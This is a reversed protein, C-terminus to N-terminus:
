LPRPRHTAPLGIFAGQQWQAGATDAIYGHRETDVGKAILTRCLHTGLGVLYNFVHRSQESATALHLFSPDTRLIEPRIAQVDRVSTLGTGFNDISISCGMRRVKNIFLLAHRCSHLDNEFGIVLRSAISPKENLLALPENWWHDDRLSQTSVKVCLNSYSDRELERLTLLVMHQDFARILGTRELCALEDDMSSLKGQSDMRRAVADYLLVNEPDSCDAVREWSTIMENRRILELVHGSMKMDARYDDSTGKQVHERTGPRDIYPAAIDIATTHPTITYTVAPYIPLEGFKIPSTSINIGLQAVWYNVASSLAMEPDSIQVNVKGIFKDDCSFDDIIFKSCISSKLHKSFNESVLRAAYDGFYKEIDKINQICFNIEYKNINKEHSFDSKENNKRTNANFFNQIKM